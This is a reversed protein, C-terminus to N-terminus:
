YWFIKLIQTETDMQRMSNM